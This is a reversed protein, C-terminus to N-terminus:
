NWWQEGEALHAQAVDPNLEIGLGPGKPVAVYGGDIVPGDHLILDEWWDLDEGAREIMSFGRITSAVVVSAITGVVSAPNHAAVKLYHLDALDAIRKTELLGGSKPIDIHVIHVGGAEIFPRFEHRGYLNEGTCIPVPSRECLRVWAPAFAVPLPDELWCPRWPAVREALAIADPLDLTWHCHVAIDVDDGFGDRLHAMQREARRLDTASLSRGLPEHAPERCGTDYRQWMSDVDLTKIATWGAAKMQAAWERCAAGDDPDPPTCTRYLRVRDRFMGGLLRATPLGTLKGALDWLAIEIGSIAAMVLGNRTHTGAWRTTLLTVLRDIDLPNDGILQPALLDNLVPRLGTGWYAEGLGWVGQDTDVRILNWTGAPDGSGYPDLRLLRVGTIRADAM